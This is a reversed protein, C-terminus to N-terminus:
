GVIRRSCADTVFSVYVVGRSTALYTLDAVWRQNPRTASFDRQGLDEPRHATAEPIRPPCRL